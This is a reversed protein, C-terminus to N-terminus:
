YLKSITHLLHIPPRTHTHMLTHTHTDTHTYTLKHTLTPIHHTHTHRHTNQDLIVKIHVSMFHVVSQNHQWFFFAKGYRQTEEEGGGTESCAPDRVKCASVAAGTSGSALMCLLM